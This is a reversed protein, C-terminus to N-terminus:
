KLVILVLNATTNKLKAKIKLQNRVLPCMADFVERLMELDDIGNDSFVDVLHFLGMDQLLRTVESSM